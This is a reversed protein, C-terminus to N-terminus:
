PLSPLYSEMNVNLPVYWITLTATVLFTVDNPTSLYISLGMDSELRMLNTDGFGTSSVQSVSASSQNYLHSLWIDPSGSVRTQDSNAIAKGAFVGGIGSVIPNLVTSALQIGIVAIPLDTKYTAVQKALPFQTNIVDGTDSATITISQIQTPM